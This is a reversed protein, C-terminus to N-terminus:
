CGAAHCRQVAVFVARTENGYSYRVRPYGGREGCHGSESEGSTGSEESGVQVVGDRRLFFPTDGDAFTRKVYWYVQEM